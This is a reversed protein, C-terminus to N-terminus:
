VYFSNDYRRHFTIRDEVVRDFFEESGDERRPMQNIWFKRSFFSLFDVIQLAIFQDKNAFTMTTFKPDIKSIRNFETLADGNHSSGSEVIFSVSVTEGDLCGSIVDDQKIISVIGKFCFAFPSREKPIKYELKGRLHSEIDTSFSIGRPVYKGVIEFLDSAFIRTEDRSWGKFPGSRHWLKHTHLRDIRRDNFYSRAEKEFMEFHMTTSLCGALTAIPDQANGSDDAFYSLAM